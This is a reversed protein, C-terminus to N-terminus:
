PVIQQVISLGHSNHQHVSLPKQDIHHEEWCIFSLNYERGTIGRSRDVIDPIAEPTHNGPWLVQAYMITETNAHKIRKEIVLFFATTKEGM